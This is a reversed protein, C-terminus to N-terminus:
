STNLSISLSTFMNVLTLPEVHNLPQPHLKHPPTSTTLISILLNSAISPSLINNRGNIDITFHKDTKKIVRYPGDYPNISLM